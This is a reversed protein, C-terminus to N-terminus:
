EIEGKAKAIANRGAQKKAFLGERLADLAPITDLADVLDELAELMDAAAQRALFDSLSAVGWSEGRTETADCLYGDWCNECYWGATVEHNGDFWHLEDASVAAYVDMICEGLDGYRHNDCLYVRAPVAKTTRM